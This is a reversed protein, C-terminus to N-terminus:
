PWAVLYVSMISHSRSSSPAFGLCALSLGILLVPERWAFGADVLVAGDVRNVIRVVRTEDPHSPGIEVLDLADLDIELSAGDLFHVCLLRRSKSGRDIVDHESVQTRGEGPGLVFGTGPM